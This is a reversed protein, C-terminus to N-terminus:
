LSKARLFENIKKSHQSALEYKEEHIACIKEIYHKILNPKDPIDTDLFNIADEIDPYFPAGTSFEKLKRITNDFRNIKKRKLLETLSNFIRFLITRLTNADYILYASKQFDFKRIKNIRQEEFQSFYSIMYARALNKLLSKAHGLCSIKGGDLVDSKITELELKSLDVADYSIASLVEGSRIKKLLKKSLNKPLYLEAIVAPYKTKICDPEGCLALNEAYVLVKGELKEPNGKKFEFLM